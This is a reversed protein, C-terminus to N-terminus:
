DYGTVRDAFSLETARLTAGILEDDTYLIHSQLTYPIDRPWHTFSTRAQVGPPRIM